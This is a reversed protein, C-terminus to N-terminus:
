QQLYGRSPQYAQRLGVDAVPRSPGRNGAASHGAQPRSDAGVAYVAAPPASPRAASPHQPHSGLEALGLDSKKPSTPTPRLCKDNIEKAIGFLFVAGIVIGAGIRYVPAQGAYKLGIFIEAIALVLAGRGVWHHYMNWAPRVAHGKDPRLVLALVQAM